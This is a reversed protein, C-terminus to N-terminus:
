IFGEDDFGFEKGCNECEVEENFDWGCESDLSQHNSEGCHPCSTEMAVTEQIYFLTTKKM